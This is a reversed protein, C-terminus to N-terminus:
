EGRVARRQAEVLQARQEKDGPDFGCVVGFTAAKPYRPALKQREREAREQSQFYQTLALFTAAGNPLKISCGVFWQRIQVLGGAPLAELTEALAMQEGLTFLYPHMQGASQAKAAGLRRLPWPVRKRLLWRGMALGLPYHGVVRLLTAAPSDRLRM